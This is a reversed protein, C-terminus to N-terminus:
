EFVFHNICNELTPLVKDKDSINMEDPQLRWDIGLETDNIFIGSEMAPNYYDDCKYQFITEDELVSFGHAFGKPIFLQRKNTGTLEVEYKKGFTPSGKRIDVVVDLVSGKVVRVLKAQAFPPHQYHLGRVVGRNSMSENDQVFVTHIGADGFTKQNFVEFFYGRADAFVKPEFLALGSIGTEIFPM